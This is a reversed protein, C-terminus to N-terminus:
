PTATSTITFSIGSPTIRKLERTLGPVDVTITNLIRVDYSFNPVNEVINYTGALSTAGSYLPIGAANFPIGDATFDTAAGFTPVIFAEVLRRRRTRTFAGQERRAVLFSQRAEMSLAENAAVDLMYEWEPLDSPAVTRPDLNLYWQDLVDAFNFQLYDAYVKRVQGWVSHQDGPLLGPPENEILDHEIDTYTTEPPITLNTM